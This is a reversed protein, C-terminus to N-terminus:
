SLIDKRVFIYWTILLFGVSFAGLVLGSHLLDGWPIPQEMAKQWINLYTTFLYPRMTRFLDVPIASIVYSVIIVAMTGIIPGIGNDVLSSLLFALSAVSWMGWAALGCGLLLRWPAESEPIVTLVKGQVLLVGTGFMTIGLGVSIAVLFAVVTSAYLLTTIYKAFLIRTRSAPRILLIRYTGGTAEGALQDGAGLTILFPIHVWLSNMILATVFYGNLINGLFLFDQGLARTAGKVVADGQLKVGIMVLPVIVAVAIFAIASRWKFSTKLIENGIISQV